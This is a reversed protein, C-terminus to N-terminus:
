KQTPKSDKLKVSRLVDDIRNELEGKDSNSSVCPTMLGQLEQGLDDCFRDMDLDNRDDNFPNEIEEGASLLGLFILAAISTGPISIYKLKQWLQFPLFFIYLYAASWLQFRYSYPIQDVSVKELDTFSQVLQNLAMLLNNTISADTERQQLTVIYSSLCFSIELPVNGTSSISKPPTRSSIGPGDRPQTPSPRDIAPKDSEGLQDNENTSEPKVEIVVDGPLRPIERATAESAWSSYTSRM